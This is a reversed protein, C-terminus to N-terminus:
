KLNEKTIITSLTFILKLDIIVFLLNCEKRKKVRRKNQQEIMEVKYIM